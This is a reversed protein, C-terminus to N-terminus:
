GRAPMSKRRALSEKPWCAERDDCEPVPCVGVPLVVWPQRSETLIHIDPPCLEPAGRRGVRVSRYLPGACSSVSWFAHCDPCRHIRQGKGSESPTLVERPAGAAVEVSEAEPLANVAFASGTERRCRRCHCAHVFLPRRTLRYRVSGCACRGDM